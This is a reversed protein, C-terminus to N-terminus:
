VEWKVTEGRRIKARLKNGTNMRQMGPNLRTWASNWCNNVEALKRLATLDIGGEAATTAKTLRRAVKDNSSISGHRKKFRAIADAMRAAAARKATKRTKRAM